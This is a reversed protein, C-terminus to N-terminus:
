LFKKMQESKERLRKIDDDTITKKSENNESENDWSFKIIDQPKLRKTSNVQATIYSNFRTQEWYQRYSYQTLDLLDELEYLRM